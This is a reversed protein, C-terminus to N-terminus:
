LTVSKCVAALKGIAERKEPDYIHEMTLGCVRKAIIDCTTKHDATRISPAGTCDRSFGVFVVRRDQITLIARTCKKDYKCSKAYDDATEPISLAFSGTKPCGTKVLLAYARGMVEELGYFTATRCGKQCRELSDVAAKFDKDTMTLSGDRFEFKKM